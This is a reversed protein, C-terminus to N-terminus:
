GGGVPPYFVIKDKDTIPAFDAAIQDNVIARISPSSFFDCGLYNNLWLRLSAVTDIHKPISLQRPGGLQDALRGLFEFQAM